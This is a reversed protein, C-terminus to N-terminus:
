WRRGCDSSRSVLMSRQDVPDATPRWLGASEGYYVVSWHAWRAGLRQSVICSQIRHNVLHAASHSPCTLWLVGCTCHWGNANRIRKCHSCKLNRWPNRLDNHCQRTQQGATETWLGCGPCRLKRFINNCMLVRDAHPESVEMTDAIEFQRDHKRRWRPLGKPNLQGLEVEYTGARLKVADCKSLRGAQRM